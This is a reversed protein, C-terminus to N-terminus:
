VPSVVENGAAKGLPWSKLSVPRGEADGSPVPKICYSKPLLEADFCLGKGVSGKTELDMRLEVSLLYTASLYMQEDLATRFRFEIDISGAGHQPNNLLAETADDSLQCTATIHEDKGSSIVAPLVSAAGQFHLVKDNQRLVLFFQDCFAPVGNKVSVSISISLVHDSELSPSSPIEVDLHDTLQPSRLSFKHIELLLIPVSQLSRTANMSSLQALLDQRTLNLQDKQLAATYAIFALALGSALANMAGFFDGFQGMKEESDPIGGFSIYFYSWLIFIAAFIILFLGSTSKIWSPITCSTSPASMQELGKNSSYKILCRSLV